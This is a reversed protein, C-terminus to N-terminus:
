NEFYIKNKFTKQDIERNLIVYNKAILYGTISNDNLFHLGLLTPIQADIVHFTVNEVFGSTWSVTTMFTGIIPLPSNGIGMVTAHNKKLKIKENFNRFFNLPFINLFSGTDIVPNHDSKSLSLYMNIFLKHRNM